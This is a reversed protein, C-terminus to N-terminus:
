HLSCFSVSLSNTPLLKTTIYCITKQNSLLVLSHFNWKEKWENEKRKGDIQPHNRNSSLPSSFLKNYFNRVNSKNVVCEDREFKGFEQAQEM